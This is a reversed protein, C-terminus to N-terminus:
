VLEKTIWIPNDKVDMIVEEVRCPRSWGEPIKLQDQPDWARYIDDFERVSTHVIDGVKIHQAAEWGAPNFHKLMTGIIVNTGITPLILSYPTAWDMNYLNIPEGNEEGITQDFTVRANSEVKLEITQDAM